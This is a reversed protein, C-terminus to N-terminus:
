DIKRGSMLLVASIVLVKLLRKQVAEFTLQLIVGAPEISIRALAPSNPNLNKLSFLELFDGSPRWTFTEGGSIMTRFARNSALYLWQSTHMTWGLDEIKITPQDAWTILAVHSGDAGEVVTRGSEGDDSAFDSTIHFHTRADPGIFVSNLITDGFCVFTYSVCFQGLHMIPRPIHSPISGYVSPQSGCTPSVQSQLHTTSWGQIFPNMTQVLQM